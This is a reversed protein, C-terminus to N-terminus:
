FKVSVLVGSRFDRQLGGFGDEGPTVVFVYSRVRVDHAGRGHQLRFVPYYNPFQSIQFKFNSIQFNFSLSIQFYEPNVRVPQSAPQSASAALKLFHKPISALNQLYISTPFSEGLDVCHVGKCRGRIEFNENFIASFKATEEFLIRCFKDSNRRIKALNQCYEELNEWFAANKQFNSSFPVTFTRFNM